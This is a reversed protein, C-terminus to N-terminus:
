KLTIYIKFLILNKKLKLFYKMFSFRKKLFFISFEQCHCGDSKTSQVVLQHFIAGQLKFNTLCYRVYRIKWSVSVIPEIERNIYLVIKKNSKSSILKVEKILFKSIGSDLRRIEVMSFFVKM